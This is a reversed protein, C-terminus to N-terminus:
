MILNTPWAMRWVLMKCNNSREKWSKQWIELSCQEFAPSATSAPWEWDDAGRGECMGGHVHVPVDLDCCGEDRSRGHYGRMCTVM